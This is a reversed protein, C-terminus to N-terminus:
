WPRDRIYETDTDKWVKNVENLPIFNWSNPSPGTWWTRPPYKRVRRGHVIFVYRVETDAVAFIRNSYFDAIFEDDWDTMDSPRFKTEWTLDLPICREHEKGLAKQNTVSYRSIDCTQLWQVPDDTGDPISNLLDFQKVHVIYERGTQRSTAILDRDEKFYQRLSPDSAICVAPRKVDFGHKNFENLAKVEHDWAKINREETYFSM